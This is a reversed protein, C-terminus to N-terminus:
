VDFMGDDIDRRRGMVVGLFGVPGGRDAEMSMWREAVVVAVVVVILVVVVLLGRGVKRWLVIWPIVELVEWSNFEERSERM